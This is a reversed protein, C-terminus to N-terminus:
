FELGKLLERSKFEVSLHYNLFSSVVSSAKTLFPPNPLKKLEKFPTYLLNQLFHLVQPALVISTADSPDCQLCILGGQSLSFRISEEEKRGCRVCVRLNPLFGTVALIKLDFALLLLHYDETDALASLTSSLLLYLRPEAHGSRAIKETLELMAYGCTLRLFDERLSPYINLIEAQIVTDLNKGSYLLLDLNTFPELRAGFKSRTRCVGKAVAAVKGKEETLFTIIKDAEGLKKSKLVIGRTKYSKM